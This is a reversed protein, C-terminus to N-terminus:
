MACLSIVHNQIRRRQNKNQFSEQKQLVKTALKLELVQIFTLHMKAVETYLRVKGLESKFCNIGFCFYTGQYRTKDTPKM